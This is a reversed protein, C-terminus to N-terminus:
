IEESLYRMGCGGQKPLYIMSCHGRRKQKTSPQDEAMIFIIVNDWENVGIDEYGVVGNRFDSRVDFGGRVLGDLDNIAFALNNTRSENVRM